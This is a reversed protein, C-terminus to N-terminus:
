YFVHRTSQVYTLKTVNSNIKAVTGRKTDATSPYHLQKWCLNPEYTFPIIQWLQLFLPLSSNPPATTATYHGNFWVNTEQLLVIFGCVNCHQTLCFDRIEPCSVMTNLNQVKVKSEGGGEPISATAISLKFKWMTYGTVASPLHIHSVEVVVPDLDECGNTPFNPFYTQPLSFSSLGILTATSM